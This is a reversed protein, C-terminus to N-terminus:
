LLLPQGKSVAEEELIPERVLTHMLSLPMILDQM